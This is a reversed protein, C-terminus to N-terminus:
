GQGRGAAEQGRALATVVGIAAVAACVFLAAHLADVFTQALAGAREPSLTGRGALLLAGAAAGGLGTFVAGALAVSLSQGLVRATALMGSAVGQETAPAAGMIARSNPSQFMAQGLGVVVLSAVLYWTPTTADLRTLLVLGLCAIALGAPALWRSGARDALAGSLPAVVGLTLSLPTLLLGSMLTDFGRLEEFYFPLLFGVAFLALMCLMFSVNALVFVRNRLLALDIIPSPQRREVPLTAALAVAAIAVAAIFRTSTWGWEPGFSLAATLAALGVGLLIAGAVDFRQRVLVQREKLVRSAALIVAAGVPVNVYFISRWDFADTQIGGITPGASVGLAVLVMNTGLARGREAPPFARTILAVNTAFIGAAGLGQLCRAAILLPLSPAAGCVASSLTFMALGALFVPRRGMMDALRGLTLLTGAVVVLYGILVWEVAGTLPVGFARAISPLAINVISSDLTTMFAATGSLSLIMWKSAQQVHDAPTASVVDAHAQDSPAQACLSSAAVLAVHASRPPPVNSPRPTARDSM